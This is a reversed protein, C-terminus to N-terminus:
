PTPNVPCAEYAQSAVMTGVAKWKTEDTASASKDLSVDYVTSMTDFASALPPDGWCPTPTAAGAKYASVIDYVMSLDTATEPDNSTATHLRRAAEWTADQDMDRLWTRDNSMALAREKILFGLWRSEEWTKGTFDGPLGAGYDANARAIM